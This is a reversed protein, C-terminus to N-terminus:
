RGARPPAAGVLSVTSEGNITSIFSWTSLSGGSTAACAVSILEDSSGSSADARQARRGLAAVPQEVDGGFPQQPLPMEEVRDGPDVDLEDHDVLHVRTLM